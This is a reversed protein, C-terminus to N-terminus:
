TDEWQDKNIDGTYRRSLLELDGEAGMEEVKRIIKIIYQDLEKASLELMEYDRSEDAPNDAIKREIIKLLGLINAVPRRLEHAGIFAIEELGKNRSQLSKITLLHNTIDRGYGAIGIVEKDLLIPSLKFEIWQAVNDPKHFLRTKVVEVGISAENFVQHRWQHWGSDMQEQLFPMGEKVEKRYIMSYWDSFANNYTTIHFDTDMAWVLEDTSNILTKLQEKQAKEHRLRAIEAQQEEYLQTLDNVIVLRSKQNKFYIDLANVQVERIEGSKTVHYWFGKEDRENKSHKLHAKLQNVESKPRIDEITMQKWEEDSYGYRQKAADNVALFALTNEDYIWMPKPNHQFVRQFARDYKDISAEKIRVIAFGVLSMVVVFFLGKITQYHTIKEGSADELWNFVLNDTLIIWLTGLVLLMLGVVVSTRTRFSRISFTNSGAM